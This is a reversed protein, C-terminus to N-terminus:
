PDPLKQGKLIVNSFQVISPNLVPADFLEMSNPDAIADADNVFALCRLVDVRAKSRM